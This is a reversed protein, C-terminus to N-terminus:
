VRVQVAVSSLPFAATTVATTVTGFDCPFFFYAMPLPLVSPPVGPHRGGGKSSPGVRRRGFGSPRRVAMLPEGGQKTASPPKGEAEVINRNDTAM